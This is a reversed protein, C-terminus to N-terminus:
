LISYYYYVVVVITTYPLISMQTTYENECYQNKQYM